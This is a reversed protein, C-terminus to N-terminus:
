EVQKWRLRLEKMQTSLTDEMQNSKWQIMNFQKKIGELEVKDPTAVNFIKTLRVVDSRLWLEETSYKYRLSDGNFFITDPNTRPSMGWMKEETDFHKAMEQRQWFQAAESDRLVEDHESIFKIGKAFDEHFGYKHFNPLWKVVFLRMEELEKEQKLQRDNASHYLDYSKRLNEDM